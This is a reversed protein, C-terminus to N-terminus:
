FIKGGWEGGSWYTDRWGREKQTVCMHPGHRTLLHGAERGAPSDALGGLQWWGAESFYKPQTPSKWTCPQGRPPILHFYVKLFISTQSEPMRMWTAWLYNNHEWSSGRRNRRYWRPGSNSALSIGIFWEQQCINKEELVDTNPQYCNCLPVGCWGERLLRQTRRKETFLHTGDAVPKCEWTQARQRLTSISGFRLM